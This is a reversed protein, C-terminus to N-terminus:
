EADPLFLDKYAFKNFPGSVVMKVIDAVANEIANKVEKFIDQSNQQLFTNMQMSLAEDNFM